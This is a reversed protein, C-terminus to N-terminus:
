QFVITIIIITRPKDGGRRVRFRMRTRRGCPRGGRRAAEAPRNRCKARAEGDCCLIINKWVVYSTYVNIIHLLIFNHMCLATNHVRVGRRAPQLTVNAPRTQSGCTSTPLLLLIIIFIYVHVFLIRRKCLEGPARRNRLPETNTTPVHARLLIVRIRLIYPRARAPTTERSACHRRSSSRFPGGPHRSWIIIIAAGKAGCRDTYIYFM